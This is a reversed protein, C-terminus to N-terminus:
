PRGRSRTGEGWFFPGGVYKVHIDWGLPQLLGELADPTHATKVARFSAGTTLQRRIVESDEGEILEEPARYGDDAFAVRGGAELCRDVLSWFTEFRAMPVHSLWFAFFVVDYRRDPEWTFVDAQLFRVRDSRTRAVAKELMEPSADLATVATAHELLHPTWTGPGCALELVSGSPRFEELAAIMADRGRNLEDMPLHPIASSGYEAALARYYAVQEALLGDLDDGAPM